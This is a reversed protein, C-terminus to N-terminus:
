GNRAEALREMLRLNAATLERNREDAERLQQKLSEIQELLRETM